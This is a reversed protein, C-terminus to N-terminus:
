LVPFYGQYFQLKFIYRLYSWSSLMNGNLPHHCILYEAKKQLKYDLLFINSIRTSKVFVFISIYL